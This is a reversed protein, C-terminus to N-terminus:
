ASHRRVREWLDEIADDHIGIAKNQQRLQDLYDTCAESAGEAGVIMSALEDPPVDGLYTSAETNNAATLMPRSRGDALEVGGDPPRLEARRAGAPLEQRGRGPGRPFRLGGRVCTGGEIRELGMTPGPRARTGWNKRSAKNMARVYGRLVAGEHRTGGYAEEWGDWMLSGYGFVWYM